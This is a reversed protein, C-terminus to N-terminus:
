ASKAGAAEAYKRDIGCIHASLWVKLFMFFDQPIKGETSSKMKGVHDGFKKLLDQHIMKHASTQTYKELGSFYKEENAFHNQTKQALTEVIKMLQAKSAGKENEQFLQNMISILEQHERDMAAVNLGFKGQDWNFINTESM